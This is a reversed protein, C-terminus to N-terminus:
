IHILSLDLLSLPKDDVAPTNTNKLDTEKKKRAAALAALKSPKASGGLLRLPPYVPEALIVGEREPPINFWPVDKFWDAAAM